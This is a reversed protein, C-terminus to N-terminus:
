SEDLVVRLQKDDTVRLKIMQSDLKYLDNVSEANDVFVPPAFGFHQQLTSVVDLGICIKMASNLDSYPVGNVTVECCDAIGGNIQVDFLKFRAVKFKSNISETVLEVKTKTFLECLYIAKETEEFQKAYDKQKQGYESIRAETEVNQRGKALIDQQAYLDANLAAIQETYAAITMDVAGRLKDLDTQANQLQASLDDKTPVYDSKEIFKFDDAQMISKKESDLGDMQAKLTAMKEKREAQEKELSKIQAALATGEDALQKLRGHKCDEFTKIAATVKDAPIDQGCTPCVVNGHWTEASIQKYMQRSDDLRPKLSSLIREASSYDNYITQYENGLKYSQSNVYDLKKGLEERHTQEQQAHFANNRTENDQLQAKLSSITAALEATDAGSKAKNLATTLEELSAKIEASRATAAVADVEVITKAAEDIRIPLAELEKNIDKKRESLIKKYDEFSHKGMLEPLASLEKNAAVVDADSVDGCVEFLLKRRDQWKMQENIFLPNSLMKFANEDCIGQIYATYETVKYPVTDVYCATVDGAYESELKGRSKVWNEKLVKKLVVTEGNIAFIGTVSVEIGKPAGIPKICFDKRGQSDKGFLLWTYGDEITTKGAANEGCITASKGDFVVTTNKLGKFNELTLSLIKV